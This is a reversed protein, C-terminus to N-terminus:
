CYGYENAKEMLRNLTLVGIGKVKEGQLRTLFEMASNKRSEGAAEYGESYGKQYETKGAQAKETEIYALLQEDTMKKLRVAKEHIEREEASRRCNRKGM